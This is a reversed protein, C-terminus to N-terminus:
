VILDTGRREKRSSQAEAGPGEEPSGERLLKDLGGGGGSFLQFEVGEWADDAKGRGEMRVVFVKEEREKKRERALRAGEKKRDPTPTRGAKKGKKRRLFITM